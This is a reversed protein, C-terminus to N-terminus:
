NTKANNRPLKALIAQVKNQLSERSMGIFQPNAYLVGGIVLTYAMGGILIQLIQRVIGSGPIFGVLYFCALATGSCILIAPLQILNERVRSIGLHGAIITVLILNTIMNVVLYNWAIGNSGLSEPWIFNPIQFLFVCVLTLVQGIVTTVAQLKTKETAILYAGMVQGVSQYITYYMILVTVVIAGSYLDGFVLSLLYKSFIGIFVAFYSTVWFMLKYSQHFRDRMKTADQTLVAFERKMLEAYPVFVYGVMTNLQWAVGFNAQESAGGFKMLATNMVIVVVQSFITAFVLPRCFEVYEKIYYKTGHDIQQPYREKNDKFLAVLLWLVIAGTIVTMCAFFVELNLFRFAYGIVVVVSLLVKMLMQLAAPFRSIASADYMSVTDTLLKNVINADLALLVVLLTQGGFSAFISPIKSTVMLGINLVIAMLVYFKLYFRLIGIEENRKSFKAVMANSTSLNALVVLSVFTNMDYTYYGYAEKSIARPLLMQVVINVVAILISSSIKIIYRNTFQDRKM